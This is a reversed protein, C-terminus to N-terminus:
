DFSPENIAFVKDSHAVVHRFAPLLDVVFLFLVQVFSAKVCFSIVHSRLSILVFHIARNPVQHTKPWDLRLPTSSLREGILTSVANAIWEQVYRTELRLTGARKYKYCRSAAWGPLTSARCAGVWMVFGSNPIMAQHQVGACLFLTFRDEETRVSQGLTMSTPHGSYVTHTSENVLHDSLCNDLHSLSPASAKERGIAM